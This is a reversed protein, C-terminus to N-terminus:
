EHPLKLRAARSVEFKDALQGYGEAKLHDIIEQYGKNAKPNEVDAMFTIVSNDSPLSRLQAVFAETHESAFITIAHQLYSPADAGYTAGKSLRVLLRGVEPEYNEALPPIASIFDFGDYLERHLDFLKMFDVFNGPFVRLYNQQINQDKPNRKLAALADTLKQAKPSLHQMQSYGCVSTGLLLLISITRAYVTKRFLMSLEKM